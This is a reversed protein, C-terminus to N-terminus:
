VPQRAISHAALSARNVVNRMPEGRLARAVEEYAQRRLDDLAEVTHAACHPSLIVNPLSLLPNGPAPPETEFVDVAAGAILGGKVARVLDAEVVVEGRACNILVSGRKMRRLQALGIMGRTEKTLPVHLSVFDAMALLSDLSDRPTADPPKAASPFMPDFYMVKLGFATARRAVAQAIRGFGVLGLVKGRLSRAPMVHLPNWTGTRLQGDGSILKREWALLLALTHDAVEDTCFEPVNAVSIGAEAAADTDMNDYGTGIRVIARCRELSRIAQADVKAAGVLVVDAQACLAVVEARSACDSAELVAGCRDLLRRASEDPPHQKPNTLAVKYKM